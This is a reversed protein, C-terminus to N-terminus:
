CPYTLPLLPICGGGRVKRLGIKLGGLIKPAEKAGPFSYKPMEAVELSPSSSLLTLARLM